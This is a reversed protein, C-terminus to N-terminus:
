IAQAQMPEKKGMIVDITESSLINRGECEWGLAQFSWRKDKQTLKAFILGSSKLVVDIPYKALEHGPRDGEPLCVSVYSDKVDKFSYQTSFIHVTVYLEKVKKSLESFNVEIVEGM